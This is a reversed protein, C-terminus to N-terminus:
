AYNLVTMFGLDMHNQQHCHLLTKGPHDALFEVTTETQATVLVTDKM